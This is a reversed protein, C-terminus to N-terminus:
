FLFRRTPIIVRDGNELQFDYVPDGTSLLKEANIEIVEERGDNNMRRITVKKLNAVPPIDGVKLLLRLLTCPEGEFFRYEGPRKVEGLVIISKEGISGAVINQRSMVYVYDNNKLYVEPVYPMGNEDILSYMEGKLDRAIPSLMGGRVVRISVGEASPKIGGARLLAESLSIVEGAGIKIIGPNNVAGDVRIKDYSARIIKVSVNANKFAGRTKLISAIKEEAEHETKNYLIIPGVYGLVVAGIDNVPYTGDLTPDEKVKIQLLCDPQITIAADVTVPKPLSYEPTEPQLITKQEEQQEIKNVKENRGLTQVSSSSVCGAGVMIVLLIM